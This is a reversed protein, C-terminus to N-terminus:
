KTSVQTSYLIDEKNARSAKKVRAEVRCAETRDAFEAWAVLKVPRRGRTYRAGGPQDGNHEAVRREIDTTVGCYLTADACEVLYVYWAM